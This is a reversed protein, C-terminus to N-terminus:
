IVQHIVTHRASRAATRSLGLRHLEQNRLELQRKCSRARALHSPAIKGWGGHRAASRREALLCRANAREGPTLVSLRYSSDALKSSTGTGGATIIKIVASKSFPTIDVHGGWAAGGDKHQVIGARGTAVNGARLPIDTRAAVQRMVDRLRAYGASDLFSAERGSNILEYSVSLPNGRAQTWPKREIPVIYACHGERDIIFTSSAQSSPRDFLAIIANVDSWGPRNPSVTYHLVQYIPRVGGRSSQNSVFRTICGRFGASAGLTPLPEKLQRVEEVQQDVAELEAPTAEPPSEDRLGSELTPAAQQVVAEPVVVERAPAKDNPADNVTVTVTDTKGDGDTDALTITISVLALLAALAALGRFFRDRTM